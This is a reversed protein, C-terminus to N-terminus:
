ERFPIGSFKIPVDFGTQELLIELAARQGEQRRHPGVIISKIPLKIKPQDTLSFRKKPQEYLSIFPVVEGSSRTRFKIPKILRDDGEDAITPRNCLAVIRYENEEEFSADKLFPAVSLFPRAFDDTTKAGLIDSIESTNEPFLNKLLIGALGAFAEADVQKDHDRYAIKNTLIGQYRFQGREAQNLKDIELEDFEIAFGGRAYGRWQSLLGHEYTQTGAAHICFSCIFFPATNNAAQVMAQLMKEAEQRYLTDGYEAIISPHILGREILKPVADRLQAELRPLLVALIARCETSDNLFDAHTAFLCQNQVIGIVGDATTYHFLSRSEQPSPKAGEMSQYSKSRLVGLEGGDRKSM